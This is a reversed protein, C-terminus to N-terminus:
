LHLTISMPGERRGGVALRPEILHYNFKNSLLVVVLYERGVITRYSGVYKYLSRFMVDDWDEEEIM